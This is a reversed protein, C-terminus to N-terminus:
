SPLHLHTHARAHLLHKRITHARAQQAHATANIRTSSSTSKRCTQVCMHPEHHKMMNVHARLRCCCREGFQFRAFRTGVRRCRRRLRGLLRTHLLQQATDVALTRSSHATDITHPTILRRVTLVIQARATADRLSGAGAGGTHPRQRGYSARLEETHAPRRAHPTQPASPRRRRQQARAACRSRARAIRAQRVRARARAHTHTNSHRSRMRARVVPCWCGSRRKDARRKRRRCACLLTDDSTSTHSV